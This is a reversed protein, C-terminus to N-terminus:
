FYHLSIIVFKSNQITMGPPLTDDDIICTDLFSSMQQENIMDWPIFACGSKDEWFQSFDFLVKTKGWDL